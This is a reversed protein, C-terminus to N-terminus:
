VWLVRPNMIAHPDLAAKLTRMLALAGPDELRAFDERRAVGIGHEASISGGHAAVTDHVARTVRTRLAEVTGADAERGALAPALGVDYHINGDGMHGFATIAGGAGLAGVAADAAALFAPVRAVPVSVDHKASPGEPKQAASIDERLRWLARAQDTSAAIVADTIQGSDLAQALLGEIAPRLAGARTGEVEILVHSPSPEALPARAGAVHRVVLDLARANVLEFASLALGSGRLRGLLALAADPGPVACWAVCTEEPLPQLELCAATIIGLTGEAGILLQKVDYGTNDKRLAGLQDLVSGDPLVAELGLVLRRMMGHRLVHVGGANTSVLGGITASGQSALTLPVRRALTAAADHVAQLTAGAEVTIAEDALSLARVRDMRRLSLLVEGRPIQGGVLGTNGGQPTIPIRAVACTRVIAAVEVTSAPMLMLPTHGQWRGRWESLHPAVRAPDDTWGAPGVIGRLAQLASPDLAPATNPAATPAATPAADPM